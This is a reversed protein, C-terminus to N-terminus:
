GKYWIKMCIIIVICVVIAVFLAIQIRDRGSRRVFWEIDAKARQLEAGVETIGEDIERLQESQTALTTETHEAIGETDVLVQNTRQIAALSQDQIQIGQRLNCQAGELGGVEEDEEFHVSSQAKRAQQELFTYQQQHQKYKKSFVPKDATQCQNVELRLASLKKKARRLHTNIARAAVKREAPDSPLEGLLCEIDELVKEVEDNYYEVDSM